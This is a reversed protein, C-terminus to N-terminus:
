KETRKSKQNNCIYQLIDIIHAVSTESMHTRSLLSQYFWEENCSSDWVEFLINLYLEKQGNSMNTHTKIYKDFEIPNVNVFTQIALKCLLVLKDDIM